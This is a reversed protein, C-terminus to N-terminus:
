GELRSCWWQKLCSTLDRKLLSCIETTFKTYALSSNIRSSWAFHMCIIFKNAGNSANSSVTVRLQSGTGQLIGSLVLCVSINGADELVSMEGSAFSVTVVAPFQFCGMRFRWVMRTVQEVLEICGVCFLVAVWSIARELTWLICASIVAPTEKSRLPVQKWDTISFIWMQNSRKCLVEWVVIDLCVTFIPTDNKCTHLTYCM